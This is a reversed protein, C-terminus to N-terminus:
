PSSMGSAVQDDPISHGPISRRQTRAFLRNLSGIGPEFWRHATGRPFTFVSRSHAPHSAPELPAARFRNRHGPLRNTTDTTAALSNINESGVVELAEGTRGTPLDSDQQRLIAIRSSTRGIEQRIRRGVRKDRGWLRSRGCSRSM